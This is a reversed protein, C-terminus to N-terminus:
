DSGPVPDVNGSQQKCEWRVFDEYLDIQENMCYILRRLTPFSYGYAFRGGSRLDEERRRMYDKSQLNQNEYLGVARHVDQLTARLEDWVLKEFEDPDICSQM